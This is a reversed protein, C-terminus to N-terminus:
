GNLRIWSETVKYLFMRWAIGDLVAEKNMNTDTEITDHWCNKTMGKKQNWQGKGVNRVKRALKCVYCPWLFDTM